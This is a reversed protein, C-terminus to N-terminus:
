SSKVSSKSIFCKINEAVKIKDELTFALYKKYADSHWDGMLQIKDASTKAKFLLTAFGRRSAHTTFSAPDM